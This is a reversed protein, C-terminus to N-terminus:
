FLRLTKNPFCWLKLRTLNSSQELNNTKDMIKIDILDLYKRIKDKDWYPSIKENVDGDIVSFPTVSVSHVSEVWPCSTEYKSAHTVGPIQMQTDFRNTLLCKGVGPHKSCRGALASAYKEHALCEAELKSHLSVSRWRESEALHSLPYIARSPLGEHRITIRCLNKVRGSRMGGVWGACM